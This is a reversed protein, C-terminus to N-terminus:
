RRDVKGKATKEVSQKTKKSMESRFVTQLGEPALSNMREYLDMNNKIKHAVVLGLSICRALFFLRFVCRFVIIKTNGQSGNRSKYKM